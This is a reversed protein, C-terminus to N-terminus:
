KTLRQRVASPQLQQLSRQTTKTEKIELANTRNTPHCTFCCHQVFSLTTTRDQM